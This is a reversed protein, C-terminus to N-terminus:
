WDYNVGVRYVADSRSADPDQERAHNVFDWDLGFSASVGFGIPFNFGTESDFEWRLAEGPERQDLSRTLEHKHFMTVRFPLKYRYDTSFRFSTYTEDEDGSQSASADEFRTKSYQLGFENALASKKSEWFQYGIGSAVALEEDINRTTDLEVSFKNSWYWRPLFFWDLAYVAKGRDQRNIATVNNVETETRQRDYHLEVNHRLDGHRLRTNSNVEWYETERNGTQKWGSARIDGGYDWADSQHDEYSMVHKLSLLSVRKMTGDECRFTVMPPQYEYWSCAANKGRLKFKGSSQLSIILPKKIKLEGFHKSQWIVMDDKIRLLQGEFQDGNHLLIHGAQAVGTGFLAVVSFIFFIARM